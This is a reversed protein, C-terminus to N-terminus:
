RAAFRLAALRVVEGEGGRVQLYVDHTGTAHLPCRVTKWSDWGGTSRLECSAVRPGGAPRDLWVDVRREARRHDGTAVTLEIARSALGAGGLDVSGYMVWDGDELGGLVSGHVASTVVGGASRQDPESAPITTFGDRYSFSDFDGSRNSAFVGAQNGVWGDVLSDYNDLAAIDIPGGVQSWTVRDTSFWGTAQHNARVLKLWVTKGAPAAVSTSTTLAPPSGFAFTGLAFRVKDGGDWVRALSVEISAANTWADFRSVEEAPIPNGIRLGAADGAAKPTFDLRTVMASSHLAEKQVAWVTHGPEPKVRLWGPRDTTSYRAAATHGYFTWGTALEASRFDDSLPLLFSTDGAPLNPAPAPATWDGNVSPIGDDSWTVQGLLGQRALGMWGGTCEYSHFLAWWTGDAIQIPASSHQAGAFPATNAALRGLPTWDNPDASLKQARWIFEEGGCGTHTTVFYYYFGNRKMLTPGEAWHSTDANAPDGAPDGCGGNAVNLNVFSLDITTGAILMGTVPDIKTLTNIGFNNEQGGTLGNWKCQGAKAVLYTTGDDDIFVSDDYGNGRNFTAAGGPPTYPFANLQIPDSWPGALSAAEAFFQNFNVAFYIRYGTDIKVIFGGWTGGGAISNQLGAWEPSVVRSVREWRVLDTSHLIEVNPSMNFDSGTVYFDRGQVFVNMDPHDGPLVPNTFVKARRGAAGSGAHFANASETETSSTPSSEPPETACANVLSALAAAAITGILRSSIM